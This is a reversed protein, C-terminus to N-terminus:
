KSRLFNAEHEAAERVWDTSDKADCDDCFEGTMFNGQHVLGCAHCRGGETVDIVIEELRAVEAQLAEVKSNLKKVLDETMGM